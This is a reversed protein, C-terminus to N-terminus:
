SLPFPHNLFKTGTYLTPPISYLTSAPLIITIPYCVVCGVVPCSLVCFCRAGKRKVCIGFPFFFCCGLWCWFGLWLALFALCSWSCFGLLSAPCSCSSLLFLSSLLLFSSFLLRFVGCAGFGVLWVRACFGWLGRSAGLCCLGVCVGGFRALFARLVRFLAMNLRLTDCAFCSLQCFPPFVARFSHVLGAGQVLPCSSLCVFLASGVGCRCWIEFIYKPKARKPRRFERPLVFVLLYINVKSM